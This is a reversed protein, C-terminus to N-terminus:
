RKVLDLVSPLWEILFRRRLAKSSIFPFKLSAMGMIISKNSMSPVIKGKVSSLALRTPIVLDLFFIIPSSCIVLHALWIRFTVYSLSIVILGLTKFATLSASKIIKEDPDKNVLIVGWKILLVRFLAM